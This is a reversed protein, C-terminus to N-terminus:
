TMLLASSSRSTPRPGRIEAIHDLVPNALDPGEYAVLSAYLDTDAIRRALRDGGPGISFEALATPWMLQFPQSPSTLDPSRLCTETSQVVACQFPFYNADTACPRCHATVRYRNGGGD